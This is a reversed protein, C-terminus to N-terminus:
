HKKFINLLKENVVKIEHSGDIKKYISNFLKKYHELVLSTEQNYKDLRIKITEESDDSRSETMSRNKIREIISKDKIDFEIIFNFKLNNKEFFSNIFFAQSITRPYGDFIFGNKCDNRLIRESVIKNLIEDSVLHGAEMVKKLELALQNKESLKERLIEGTSLHIINLLKSFFKAQTGKGSGPPGFFIIIM